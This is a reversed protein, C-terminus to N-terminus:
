FFLEFKKFILIGERKNKKKWKPKKRPSRKRLLRLDLFWNKLDRIKNNGKIRQRDKVRDWQKDKVAARILSLKSFLHNNNSYQSVWFPNSIKYLTMDLDVQCLLLNCRLNRCMKSSKGKIKALLNIGLTRLQMIIVAMIIKDGRLAPLLGSKRNWLPSNAM